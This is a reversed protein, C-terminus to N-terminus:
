GRSSSPAMRLTDPLACCQPAHPAPIKRIDTRVPGSPSGDKPERVTGLEPLFILASNNPIQPRRNFKCWAPIAVDDRSFRPSVATIASPRPLLPGLKRQHKTLEV